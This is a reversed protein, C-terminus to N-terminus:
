LKCISEPAFRLLLEVVVADCNLTDHLSSSLAGRISEHAQCFHSNRESWRV